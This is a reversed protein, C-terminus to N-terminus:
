GRSLLRAAVRCLQEDLAVEAADYRAECRRYTSWRMWKPKPPLEWEDPDADGLLRAKVKAQTYHARGAPDLFQSAYAASRRWAHRSAFFTAGLPRFLVRVRRGTRPCSVYWQRGGFHRESAVLVFSQQLGSHRLVMEGCGEGLTLEATILEGSSCTLKATIMTGPVGRGRPILRALDIVPGSELTARQRDRPM